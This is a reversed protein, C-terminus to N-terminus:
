IAFSTLAIVLTMMWAAFEPKRRKLLQQHVWILSLMGAVVGNWIFSLFLVADFLVGIEGTNQLHILDSMIYFSNPLFALWVFTLLMPLPHLWTKTKLQKALLWIFLLPVWGLLLNWFLYWYETSNTAILRLGFLLVSVGNSLFVAWVIGRRQQGTM